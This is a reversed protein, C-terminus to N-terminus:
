LKSDSLYHNAIVQQAFEPLEDFIDEMREYRMPVREVRIELGDVETVSVPSMAPLPKNEPNDVKKLKGFSMKVEKPTTDIDIGVNSGLRARVYSFLMLISNFHM